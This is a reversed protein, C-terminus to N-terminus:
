KRPKTNSELSKEDDDEDDDEDDTIEPDDEDDDEDDTIDSGDDEDDDEDDTIDGDHADDDCSGDDFARKTMPSDEPYILESKECSSFTLAFLVLMLFSVIKSFATKM